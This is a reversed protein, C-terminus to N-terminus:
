IFLDENNQIKWLYNLLSCPMMENQHSAHITKPPTTSFDQKNPLTDESVVQRKRAVARWLSWMNACKLRDIKLAENQQALVESKRKLIRVKFSFVESLSGLALKTEQRFNQKEQRKADSTNIMCLGESRPNFEQFTSAYVISQVLFKTFTVEQHRTCCFRHLTFSVVSTM